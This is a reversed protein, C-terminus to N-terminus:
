ALLAVLIILLPLTWIQTRLWRRATPVVAGVEARARIPIIEALGALVHVTHLLSAVVVLWGTFEGAGSLLIFVTVVCVAAPAPSAPFAAVVAAAAVFAAVVVPHVTHGAGALAALLLAASALGLVARLDRGTVVVGAAAGSLHPREARGAGTAASM